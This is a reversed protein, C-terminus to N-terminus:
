SSKLNDIYTLAQKVENAIAKNSKSRVEEQKTFDERKVSIEETNHLNTNALHNSVVDWNVRAIYKGEKLLWAYLSVDYFGNNDMASFPYNKIVYTRLMVTGFGNGGIDETGTKTELDKSSFPKRSPTSAVVSYKGELQEISFLNEWQWVVLEDPWFHHTYPASVSFTLKTFSRLLKEVCDYEPINDDEVILLYETSVKPLLNNYIKAMAMNVHHQVNHNGRRDKNALDSAGVIQKYYHVDEYDSSFLWSKLDEGFEENSSTDCFIIKTKSHPWSQNELFTKTEKWIEKRGSFPIFITVDETYLGAFNYYDLDGDLGRQKNITKCRYPSNHDRYFLPTPNKVGRWRGNLTKRHMVWDEHDSLSEMDIKWFESQELADRKIISSADMINQFIMTEWNYEPMKVLVNKNGFFQLDPYVIAVSPDLLLPLGTELYNEHYCNDCDLFAIAAINPNHKIVDLFGFGRSKNPCRHEVREYRVNPYNDVVEKPNDDSADDVVLIDVPPFTQNLVSEIADVLYNKYNHCTLVVACSPMKSYDLCTKYTKDEETPFTEAADPMQRGYLVHGSDYVLFANPFFNKIKERYNILNYPKSVFVIDYFNEKSKAFIDFDLQQSPHIVEVGSQQLEEAYSDDFSKGHYALPFVTVNHNDSLYNIIGYTRSFGEDADSIQDLYLISKSKKLNHTSSSQQRKGM